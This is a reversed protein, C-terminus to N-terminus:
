FQAMSWPAQLLMCSDISQLCSLPPIFVSDELDMMGNVTNDVVKAGAEACCLQQDWGFVDLGGQTQMFLDNGYQDTGHLKLQEMDFMVSFDRALGDAPKCGQDWVPDAVACVMEMEELDMDMDMDMDDSSSSPSSTEPSSSGAAKNKLGQGNYVECHPRKKLYKELNKALPAANGSYVKQEQSNSQTQHTKHAYLSSMVASHM